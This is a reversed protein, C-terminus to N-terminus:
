EILFRRLYNIQGLHYNLHTTLHILFYETTMEKKFVDIPFRSNIIEDNLNLITIKVTDLTEDVNKLLEEKPVNKLSFEKERERVYGTNGLIAGIFHKINGCIHLCLNGPSNKISGPTIWIDENEVFLNIEQKLRNLDREFLSLLSDKLM